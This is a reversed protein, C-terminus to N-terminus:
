SRLEHEAALWDDLDGGDGGGRQIYIDYARREIDERSPAAARMPPQAAQQPPDGITEPRSERVEPQTTKKARDTRRRTGAM